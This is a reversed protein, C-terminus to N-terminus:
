KLIEKYFEMHNQAVKEFSTEHAYKAAERAIVEKLPDSSYAFKLAGVLDAQTGDLKVCQKMDRYESLRSDNGFILPKGACLIRHAIASSGVCGFIQKHNLVLCDSASLWLNLEDESLFRGVFIVSNVLGLKLVKKFVEKMYERHISPALPHLCGAFVLLANPTYKQFENFAEILELQGKDAGYFSPQCLIFPEQYLGLEQRAQKQPTPTFITSGLPIVKANVNSNWKRLEADEAPNTVVVNKINSYWMSVNYNNRFQLIDHFTYVLPLGHEELTKTLM